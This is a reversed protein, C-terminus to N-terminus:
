MVYLWPHSYSKRSTDKWIMVLTRVARQNCSSLLHTVLNQSFIQCCTYGRISPGIKISTFLTDMFVNISVRAHRVRRDNIKWKINLLPVETFKVCQKITADITNKTAEKQTNWQEYLDHASVGNLNGSTVWSVEELCEALYDPEDLFDVSSNNVMSILTRDERRQKTSGKYDM